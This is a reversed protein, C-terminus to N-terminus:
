PPPARWELVTDAGGSRDSFLLPWVVEMVHGADRELPDHHHDAPPSMASAVDGLFSKGSTRVDSEVDEAYLSEDHNRVWDSLGVYFKWPHRQIASRTVQFQACCATQWQKPPPGLESQLVNRWLERLVDAEEPSARALDICDRDEMPVVSDSSLDVYWCTKGGPLFAFGGSNEAAHIDAKPLYVEKPQPDHWDHRSAHVFTVVDPLDHYENIIYELYKLAENGYNQVYHPASTNRSQYVVADFDAPLHALWNVDEDYRAVVLHRKPLGDTVNAANSIVMQTERRELNWASTFAFELFCLAIFLCYSFRLRGAICEM